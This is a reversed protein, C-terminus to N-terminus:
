HMYLKSETPSLSLPIIQSFLMSVHINGYTFYTFYIVLGLEICSVPYEFDTCQPLGSTHFPSPPPLSTRSLSVCTHCFGSCYQLTIDRIIIFLHILFYLNMSINGHSLRDCTLIKRTKFPLSGHREPVGGASQNATELLSIRSTHDEAEWSYCGSCRPVQEFHLHGLPGWGQQILSKFFTPHPCRLRTKVATQTTQHQSSNLLWQEWLVLTTPKHSCIRSVKM